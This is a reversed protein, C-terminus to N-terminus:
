HDSSTETLQNANKTISLNFLKKKIGLWLTYCHEPQM